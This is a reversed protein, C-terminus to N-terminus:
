RPLGVRRALDEFRADSRLSGLMPEVDLYVLWSSREAFARDLWEFALDNEGLAAHILAICFAPVYQQEARAKLDDLL